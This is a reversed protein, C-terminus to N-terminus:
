SEIRIRRAHVFSFSIPGGVGIEGALMIGMKADLSALGMSNEQVGIAFATPYRKRM